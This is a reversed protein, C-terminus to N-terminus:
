SSPFGEPCGHMNEVEALLKAGRGGSLCNFNCLYPGSEAYVIHLKSEGTVAADLLIMLLAIKEYGYHELYAHLSVCLM